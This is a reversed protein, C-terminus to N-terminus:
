PAAALPIASLRNAAPERSAAITVNRYQKAAYLARDAAALLDAPDGEILVHTHAVGVSITVVDTGAAGDDYPIALAQVGNRAREAIDVASARSTAPLLAVFEEGGYRALVDGSRRLTDQLVSAVRRLCADGAAHGYRDNFGKFLDVDIMLVAADGGQRRLLRMVWAASDDFTRRNYLGTLSDTMALAGIRRYLASIEGLLAVLVVSATALTLLKGVYWRPTYRGFTTANLVADIAAMALAVAIWIQLSTLPKRRLILLAVAVNAVLVSPAAVLVFLPTLQGHELFTPSFRGLSFTVVAVVLCTATVLVLVSTCERRLSVEGVVRTSSWRERLVAVAIILPFALHWITWLLVSTQALDLKAFTTLEGMAGPFSLLYPISLLGTFMYAAALALFMRVGNVMFQSLLLYATLMEATAWLAGVVALFAPVARGPRDAFASPVLAVALMAVVFGGAVLYTRRSAPRESLDALGSPSQPTFSTLPSGIVPPAM